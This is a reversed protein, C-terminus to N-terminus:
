RKVGQFVIVVDGRVSVDLMDFSGFIEPLEKAAFIHHPLGKESGSLPIFTQPEIEIYDDGVDKRAPVSVLIMGGSRVIRAIESATERVTALLAHHIVQTSILADFSDNRFPLPYRTDALTLRAQCENEALWEAALQLAVPSNDLGFVELGSQAMHLVHRGSGCGLDLARIVGEAKLMETFQIVVPSPELFIRGDRRFIDDWQTAALDMYDIQTNDSHTIWQQRLM